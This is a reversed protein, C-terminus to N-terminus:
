QLKDVAARATFIKNVDNAAQVTLAVEIIETDTGFSSSSTGDSIKRYTFQLGNTAVNDILVASQGDKTYLLDHDVQSITITKETGTPFDADYTISSGTGTTNDKDLYTFEVIMRNIAAQTKQAIADNDRAFVYGEIAKSIMMAGGAALIGLLILVVIIEILTFGRSSKMDEVLRMSGM